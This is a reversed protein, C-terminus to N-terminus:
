GDRGNVQKKIKFLKCSFGNEIEFESAVERQKVKADVSAVWFWASFIRASGAKAVM